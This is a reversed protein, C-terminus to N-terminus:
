GDRTGGALAVAILVLLSWAAVGAAILLASPRENVVQGLVLAAVVLNALERFTTSLM